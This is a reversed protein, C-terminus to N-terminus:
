GRSADRIAQMIDFPKDLGVKPFDDWDPKRPPAGEDDLREHPCPEVPMPKQPPPTHDHELANLLAREAHIGLNFSNNEIKRVELGALALARVVTEIDLKM